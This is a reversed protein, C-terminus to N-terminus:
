RRSLKLPYRLLDGRTMLHHADRHHVPRAVQSDAVQSHDGGHGGGVAALCERGTLRQYVIELRGDRDPFILEESAAVAFPHITRLSGGLGPRDNGNDLRSGSDLRSIVSIMAPTQTTTPRATAVSAETGYTASVGPGVSLVRPWGFPFDSM